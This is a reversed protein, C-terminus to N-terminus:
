NCSNCNYINKYIYVINGSITYPTNLEKKILNNKIITTDCNKECNYITETYKLINGKIVRGVLIVSRDWVRISLIKELKVSAFMIAPFRVVAM